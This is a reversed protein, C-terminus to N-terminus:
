VYQKIMVLCRHQTEVMELSSEKQNRNCSKNWTGPSRLMNQKLISLFWIDFIMNSWWWGPHCWRCLFPPYFIQTTWPHLSSTHPQWLEPLLPWLPKQVGYFLRNSVAQDSNIWLLSQRCLAQYHPFPLSNYITTM